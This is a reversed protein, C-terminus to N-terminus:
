KRSIKKLLDVIKQLTKEPQDGPILLAVAIIGTLLAVVASIIAEGNEVVFKIIESLSM